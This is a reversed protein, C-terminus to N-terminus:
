EDLAQPKLINFASLMSAGMIWVTSLVMHAAPCVSCPTKAFSPRISSFPASFFGGADVITSPDRVTLGPLGNRLYRELKSSEPDPHDNLNLLM